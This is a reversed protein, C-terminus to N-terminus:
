HCEQISVTYQGIYRRFAAETANVLQRRDGLYSNMPDEASIREAANGVSKRRAAEISSEAERTSRPADWSFEETRRRPEPRQGNKKKLDVVYLDGAALATNCERIQSLSWNSISRGPFAPYEPTFEWKYLNPSETDSKLADIYVTDHRRHISRGDLASELQYPM